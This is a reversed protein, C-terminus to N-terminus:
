KTMTFGTFDGNQIPEVIMHDPFELVLSSKGRNRLDSKKGHEFIVLFILLDITSMAM